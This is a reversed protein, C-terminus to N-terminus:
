RDLFDQIDWMANQRGKIWLSALIVDSYPCTSLARIRYQLKGEEIVRKLTVSQEGRDFARRGEPTSSAKEVEAKFRNEEKYEEREILYCPRALAKNTM